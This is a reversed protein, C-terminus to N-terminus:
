AEVAYMAGLRQAFLSTTKGGMEDYEGVWNALSPMGTQITERFIPLGRPAKPIIPSIWLRPARLTLLQSFYWTFTGAFFSRYFLKGRLLSKKIM